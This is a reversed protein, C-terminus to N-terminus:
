RSFEIGVRGAGAPSKANQALGILATLVGDLIVVPEGDDWRVSVREILGRIVDRAPQAITPDALTIALEIVKRRYIESLNPNLRVPAPAPRALEAHLTQIRGGHGAM